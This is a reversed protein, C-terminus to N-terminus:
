DYVWKAKHLANLLFKKVKKYKWQELPTKDLSITMGVFSRHHPQSQSVKLYKRFAEMATSQLPFICKIPTNACFNDMTSKVNIMEDELTFVRTEIGSLKEDLSYFRTNFIAISSQFTETVNQVENLVEVKLTQQMRAMDDITIGRESIPSSFRSYQSNNSPYCKGYVGGSLPKSLKSCGRHYFVGCSPCESFDSKIEQSCFYCMRTAGSSTAQRM